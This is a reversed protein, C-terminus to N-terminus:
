SYQSEHREIIEAATLRKGYRYFAPPMPSLREFLSKKPSYPRTQLPDKDCCESSNSPDSSTTKGVDLHCPSTQCLPILLKFLVVLIYEQLVMAILPFVILAVAVFPWSCDVDNDAGTATQNSSSLDNNNKVAPDHCITMVSLLLYGFYSGQSFYSLPSLNSKRVPCVPVLVESLSLLLKFLAVLIYEQLVVAVVPLVILAVVAFAFSKSIEADNLNAPQTSNSFDNKKSLAPDHYVCVFCLIVYGFYSLKSFTSISYLDITLCDVGWGWGLSGVESLPAEMAPDYGREVHERGARDASESHDSHLIQYAPAEPSASRSSFQEKTAFDDV